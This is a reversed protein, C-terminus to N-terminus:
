KRISGKGPFESSKSFAIGSRLQWYAAFARVLPDEDKLAKQLAIRANEGGIRGLIAAAKKRFNNNASSRLIKEAFLGYRSDAIQYHDLHDLMLSAMIPNDEKEWLQLLRPLTRKADINLLVRICISRSPSNSDEMEKKFLPIAELDQVSLLVREAQQRVFDQNTSAIKRLMSPVVKKGYKILAIVEYGRMKQSLGILFPIKSEDQIEGLALVAAIAARERDSEVVGDVPGIRKILRVLDDSANRIRLKGCMSASIANVIPNKDTLGRFFVPTLAPDITNSIANIAIQRVCDKKKGVLSFLAKVEAITTPVRDELEKGLMHRDEDSLDTKQIRQVLEHLTLRPLAKITEGNAVEVCVVILCVIKGAVFARNRM